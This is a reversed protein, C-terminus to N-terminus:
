HDVNCSFRKSVSVKDLMQPVTVWALTRYLAVFLLYLPRLRQALVESEMGPKTPAAAIPQPRPKIPQPCTASATVNNLRHSPTVPNMKEPAKRLTISCAGLYVACM